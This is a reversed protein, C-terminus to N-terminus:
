KFQIQTEKPRSVAIFYGVVFGIFAPLIWGMGYNFFPLVQSALGVIRQVVNTESWLSANLADVVAAILTFATTWFYVYQYGKFVPNILTLVILVIALPYIFMLVPISLAIINTLGVNAFIAPLISALAIFFGYSRSPFMNTFTEAFSTVLGIATKLCASIVILALLISGGQGLYYHSLQALAIGGNESLEFAGLSKAGMYALLSYIIGMLTISIVGSKMTDKAISKPETVGMNRLTSIIVVGFALAALADLTNYGELFGNSFAQTQYDPQAAMESVSAIPNTFVLFLLIGLTVLFIPNLVKGVYVVLKSPKRSYFWALLFFAISFLALVFPGSGEPVHPAIGIEYSTTALRPLAFFPGIVLYLLITFLKAYPKNIRSSLEYVSGSNSLGMAIVGLFPLGIGTLLFGINARFVEQGALQGMHVPFILNGAGFFLGFLMSGVFIYDKVKLKKNM